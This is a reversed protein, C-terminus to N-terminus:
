GAAQRAAAPEVTPFSGAPFIRRANGWRILATQDATLRIAEVGMLKALGTEMTVDSGWLM